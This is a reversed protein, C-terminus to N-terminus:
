DLLGSLDAADAAASAAPVDSAECRPEAGVSRGPRTDSRVPRLVLDKNLGLVASGSKNLILDGPRPDSRNLPFLRERPPCKSGISPLTEHQFYFKRCGQVPVIAM